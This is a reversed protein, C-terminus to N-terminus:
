FRKISVELRLPIGLSWLLHSDLSNSFERQFMGVNIARQNGMSPPDFVNENERRPYSGERVPFLLANHTSPALAWGSRSAHGPWSLVVPHHGLRRAWDTKEIGM